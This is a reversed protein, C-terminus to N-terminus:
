ICEVVFSKAFFIIYLKNERVSVSVGSSCNGMSIEVAFILNCPTFPNLLDCIAFKLYCFRVGKEGKRVSVQAQGFIKKRKECNSKSRAFRALAGTLLDGSTKIKMRANQLRQLSFKPDKFLSVAPGPEETRPPFLTEFRLKTQYIQAFCCCLPQFLM